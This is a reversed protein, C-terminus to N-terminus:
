RLAVFTDFDVRPRGATGVVRVEITRSKATAWRGTWVLRRSAGRSAYTSITALHVGDVWVQASGRTPGVPMVIAVERAVFTGRAWSGARTAYTLTGSSAYANTIRKWCVVGGTIAFPTSSM